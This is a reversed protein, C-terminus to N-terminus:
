GICAVDSFDIAHVTAEWGNYCCGPFMALNVTILDEWALVLITWPLRAIKVSISCRKKQISSKNTGLVM